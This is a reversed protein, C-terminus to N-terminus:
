AGIASEEIYTLNDRPAYILRGDECQLVLWRNHGFEYESAAAPDDNMPTTFGILRCRPLVIPQDRYHGFSFHFDHPKNFDIERVNDPARTGGVKPPRVPASKSQWPWQWRSNKM